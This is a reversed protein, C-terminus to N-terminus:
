QKQQAKVRWGHMYIHHRKHRPTRVFESVDEVKVVVTHARKPSLTRSGLSIAPTDRAVERGDVYWSIATQGGHARLLRTLQFRQTEGGTLAPLEIAAPETTEIPNVLEHIREVLAERCVPCFEKGLYQMKCYASEPTGETPKYWGEPHGAGHHPYVGVEKDDFWRRWKVKKRNSQHTMNPYEGRYVDGAYYEDALGALSHALEHVFVENSEENCTALLIEGGAGGYEDSNSIIGVQQYGPCLSDVIAWLGKSNRCDMLRHMGYTDLQLRFYTDRHQLPMKSHEPCARTSDPLLRGPHTLGSEKSEVHVAYLNFFDRYRDFPSVQFMYDFCRRADATFKNQEATTYGDGLLVFNIANRGNYLLTDVTIKGQARTLAPLCLLMTAALLIRNTIGKRNM